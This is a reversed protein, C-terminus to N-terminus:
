TGSRESSRAVSASARRPIEWPGKMVGGWEVGLIIPKTLGNITLDGILDWSGDHDVEKTGKAVFSIKPHKEIDFFEPSKLHADRQENGTTVSAAEAWFEVKGKSLDDGTTEASSNSNGHKPNLQPALDRAQLNFKKM